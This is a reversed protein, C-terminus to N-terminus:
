KCERCRDLARGRVAKRNAKGVAGCNRCRVIVPTSDSNIARIQLHSSVIREGTGRDVDIPERIRLWTM